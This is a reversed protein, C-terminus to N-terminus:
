GNSFLTVPTRTTNFDLVNNPEVVHCEKIATFTQDPHNNICKRALSLQTRTVTKSELLRLLANLGEASESETFILIDSNPTEGKSLPDFDSTIEKMAEYVSRATNKISTLRREDNLTEYLKESVRKIANTFECSNINLRIHGTRLLQQIDPSLRVREMRNKNNVLPYFFRGFSNTKYTSSRLWHITKACLPQHYQHVATLQREFIKFRRHQEYDNFSRGLRQCFQEINATSGLRKSLEKLSSYDMWINNIIQNRVKEIDNKKYNPMLDGRRLYNALRSYGKLM